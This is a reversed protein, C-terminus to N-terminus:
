VLDILRNIIYLMVQNTSTGRKAAEQRILSDLQRNARITLRKESKRPAKKKHTATTM